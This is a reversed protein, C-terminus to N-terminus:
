DSVKFYSGSLFHLNNVDPNVQRVYNRYNHLFERIIKEDNLVSADGRYKYFLWRYRMLKWEYGSFPKFFLSFLQGCTKPLRGVRLCGDKKLMYLFQKLFAQKTKFDILIWSKVRTPLPVQLAECILFSTEKHIADAVMRWSFMAAPKVAALSLFEPRSLLYVCASNSLWNYAVLMSTAQQMTLNKQEGRVKYRDFIHGVKDEYGQETLVALHEANSRANLLIQQRLAQLRKYIDPNISDEKDVAVAILDLAFQMVYKDVYLLANFLHTLLPDEANWFRALGVGDELRQFDLDIVPIKHKHSYM